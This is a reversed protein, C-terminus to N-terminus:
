EKELFKKLSEGLFYEWGGICSERKFEPVDTPYDETVINTLRLQTSNEKEFIEFEVFGNGEYEEYTWHYSIKKSPIVEKIKWLHTFIREGSKVAFSTEFGVKPQFSEINQFFWQQLKELQTIAEWVEKVSISYTVEVIIPPDNKNM